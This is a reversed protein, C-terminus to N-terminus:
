YLKHAQPAGGIAKGILRDVFEDQSFDHTNVVCSLDNIDNSSLWVCALLHRHLGMKSITMLHLAKM